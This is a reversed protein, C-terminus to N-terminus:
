GFEGAGPASPEVMWRHQGQQLPEIGRGGQSLGSAAAKEADGPGHGRAHELAQDLVDEGGEVFLGHDSFACPGLVAFIGVGSAFPEDWPHRKRPGM